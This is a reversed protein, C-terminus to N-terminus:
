MGGSGSLVLGLELVGAGILVFDLQQKLHVSDSLTQM